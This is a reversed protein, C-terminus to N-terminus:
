PRTMRAVFADGCYLQGGTRTTVGTVATCADEADPDAVFVRYVVIV